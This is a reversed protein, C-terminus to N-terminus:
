RAVHGVLTPREEQDFGVNTQRTIAVDDGSFTCTFSEIFPTEIYCVSMTYTDESTWAGNAATPLVPPPGPMRRKRPGAWNGRVWARHGCLLTQEGDAGDFTVAATEPTFTFRASEVNEDNEEFRFTRGSVRAATDSTDCGALVPLTLEAVRQSLDSGRDAAAGSQMGPLLHDWVANLAAQLDQVGGTMALVADEEPMVVCFQGFAGDGRYANHRCRWFQFGYGQAWDSDPDDGNDVQKSTAGCVWDSPLIQRGNWSGNQLYCQGFRAIDETRLSLGWGGVNIGRPCCDWSPGEIGLPEFLRPTLYELVTQGALKQVIASCMYTAASNYVFKSGPAHEVPLALFARVWDGDTAATTGDSADVDHGTSMSLLHRVRMAELNEPVIAPLRDPFFSVVADDVTLLGEAVALGVATSTFSKSLSFLSHPIQPAYPAWWGEAAVMGHRLFMFSHLGGIKTELADIFAVVSESSIGVAEPNTRPLSASPSLM